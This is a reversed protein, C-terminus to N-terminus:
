KHPVQQQILDMHSLLQQYGKEFDGECIANVIERHYTWVQKLYGLETYRNFGVEEYADWYAELIGTVFPNELRSFIALHLERHESHPLRVPSDALKQEASEVLAHLRARDEETLREVAQYWYNAEVHRRLDSFDDFYGRDLSIAYSLSAQVAPAFSYPLRRIGTRPRVEVFGLARAVGLQERLSAISVGYEESLETLPPIRDPDEEGNPEPCSLYTLLDFKVNQSNM